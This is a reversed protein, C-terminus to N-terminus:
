VDVGALGSFDAIRAIAGVVVTISGTPSAPHSPSVPLSAGQDGTASVTTTHHLFEEFPRRRTM